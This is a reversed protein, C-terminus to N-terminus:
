GRVQIAARWRQQQHFRHLRQATRATQLAGQVRLLLAAANNLRKGMALTSAEVHAGLTQMAVQLHQVVTSTTAAMGAAASQACVAQRGWM